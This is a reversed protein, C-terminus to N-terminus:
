TIIRPVIVTLKFPDVFLVGIDTALSWIHINDAVFGWSLLWELRPLDIWLRRWWEPMPFAFFDEAVIVFITAISETKFIAFDWARM